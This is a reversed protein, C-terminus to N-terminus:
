GAVRDLALHILHAGVQFVEPMMPQLATRFEFQADTIVPNKVFEVYFLSADMKVVYAVPAVDVLARSSRAWIILLGRM